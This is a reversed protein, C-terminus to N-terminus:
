GRISLNLISAVQNWIEENTMEEFNGFVTVIADRGKMLHVMGGSHPICAQGPTARLKELIEYMNEAASPYGSSELGDLVQRVASKSVRYKYIRLFLFGLLFAALEKRYRQYFNSVHEVAQQVEPPAAKLKKDSMKKIDEVSPVDTITFDTPKLPPNNKKSDSPM